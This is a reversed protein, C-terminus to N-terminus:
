INNEYTLILDNAIDNDLECIALKQIIELYKNRNKVEEETLSKIEKVEFCIKNLRNSQPPLQARLEDMYKNNKIVWEKLDFYEQETM